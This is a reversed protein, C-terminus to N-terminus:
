ECCFAEAQSGVTPMHRPGESPGTPPPPKKQHALYGQVTLVYLPVQSM